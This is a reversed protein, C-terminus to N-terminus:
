GHDNLMAIKDRYNERHKDCVAEIWKMQDHQNDFSHDFEFKLRPYRVTDGLSQPDVDEIASVLESYEAESITFPGWTAGPSMGGQSGGSALFQNIIHFPPSIGCPAFYQIDYVMVSLPAERDEAEDQHFEHRQYKITMM